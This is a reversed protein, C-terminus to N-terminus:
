RASLQMCAVIGGPTKSAMGCQFRRPTLGYFCSREFREFTGKKALDEAWGHRFATQEVDTLLLGQQSVYQTAYLDVIHDQLDLCAMIRQEETPFGSPPPTAGRHVCAVLFLPVLAVAARPFAM